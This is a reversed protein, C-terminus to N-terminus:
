CSSRRAMPKSRHAHLLGILRARNRNRRYLDELTLGGPLSFSGAPSVAIDADDGDEDAFPRPCDEYEPADCLSLRLLSPTMSPRFLNAVWTWMGKKM